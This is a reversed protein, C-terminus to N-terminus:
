TTNINFDKKLTLSWLNTWVSKSLNSGNVKNYEFWSAPRLVSYQFAWDKSFEYGILIRGSFRNPSTDKYTFGPELQRENFDNYILGLNFQVYTKSLFPHDQDSSQGYGMQISLLTFIFLYYHKLLPEVLSEFIISGSRTYFHLKFYIRRTANNLHHIKFLRPVTKFSNPLRISLKLCLFIGVM